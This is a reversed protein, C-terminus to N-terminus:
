TNDDREQLRSFLPRFLQSAKATLPVPTLNLGDPAEYGRVKDNRPFRPCHSSQRSGEKAELVQVKCM